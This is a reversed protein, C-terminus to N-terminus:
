CSFRPSKHEQTSNKFGLLSLGWGSLGAQIIRVTRVKWVERGVWTDCLKSTGKLRQRSLLLKRRSYMRSIEDDGMFIASDLQM